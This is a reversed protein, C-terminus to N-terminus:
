ASNQIEIQLEVATSSNVISFVNADIPLSGTLPSGGQNASGLVVSFMGNVLNVSGYQASWLVSPYPAYLTLKLTRVGSIPKGAGDTLRGQFAITQPVTNPGVALASGAFSIFIFLLTLFKNM